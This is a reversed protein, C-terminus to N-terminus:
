DEKKEEIATAPIHRLDVEIKVIKTEWYRKKAGEDLPALQNLINGPNLSSPREVAYRGNPQLAQLYNNIRNRRVASDTNFYLPFM